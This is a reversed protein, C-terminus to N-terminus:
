LSLCVGLGRALESKQGKRAEELEACGEEASEESKKLRVFRSM